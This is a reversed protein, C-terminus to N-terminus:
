RGGTPEKPAATRRYDGRSLHYELWIYLVIFLYRSGMERMALKASGSTRGSWSIPIVQYSHGRTIAKLPMSNEPIMTRKAGFDSRPRGTVVSRGTHSMISATTPVNIM